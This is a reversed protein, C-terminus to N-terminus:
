TSILGVPEKSLFSQISHLRQDITAIKQDKQRINNKQYITKAKIFNEQAFNYRQLKIDIEPLTQHSDAIEANKRLIDDDAEIINNELTLEHAMLQFNWATLYDDKDEIYIRVIHKCADIYLSLNLEHPILLKERLQHILHPKDAISLLYSLIESQRSVRQKEVEQDDPIWNKKKVEERRRADPYFDDALKDHQNALENDKINQRYVQAIERHMQGIEAICNLQGSNLCYKWCELAKEFMAIVQKQDTGDQQYRLALAQYQLAELWLKEESFIESLENFCM